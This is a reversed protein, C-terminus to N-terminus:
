FIMSRDRSGNLLQEITDVNGRMAAYQLSIRGEEDKALCMDENTEMLTQVIETHVKASALHLPSRKFSDLESALKPELVLLQKTFHLHGALASIHLPTETSSSLSIKSLIMPDKQVLWNLCVVSGEMSAKYLRTIIDIDEEGRIEM